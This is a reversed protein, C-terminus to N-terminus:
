MMIAFTLPRSITTLLKNYRFTEPHPAGVWLSKNNNRKDRM